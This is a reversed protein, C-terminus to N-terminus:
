LPSRCDMAETAAGLEFLANSSNLGELKLVQWVPDRGEPTLLRRSNRAADPNGTNGLKTLAAGTVSSIQSPNWVNVTM